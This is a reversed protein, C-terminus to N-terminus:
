NQVILTDTIDVSFPLTPIEAHFHLLHTGVSLNLLTIYYGDQAWLPLSSCCRNYNQVPTGYINNGSLAVAFFSTSTQRHMQIDSNNLSVGDIQVSMNSAKTVSLAQIACQITPPNSCPSPDYQGSTFDVAAFAQNLVPFFVSKGYPVKITRASVGGFNGGLFFVPGENQVAANNGTVDLDPNNAKPIGSLWQWWAQAWYLQSQGAIAQSPPPIQVQAQAPPVVALVLFLGIVGPVRPRLM